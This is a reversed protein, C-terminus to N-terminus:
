AEPASGVVVLGLTLKTAAGGQPQVQVSFQLVWHDEDEKHLLKPETEGSAPELSWVSPHNTGSAKRSLGLLDNYTVGSPSSDAAAPVLLLFDRQTAVGMHNGDTPHLGYRLTYVGPKVSQRRYDKAERLFRVAGMLTGEVIQPYAIGLQQAAGAAAPVSTRVWIECLPGEPGIIRIGEPALTERVAPGLEEPPAGAKEARYEAAASTGPLLLFLSAVVAASFIAKLGRNM